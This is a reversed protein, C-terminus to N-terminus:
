RDIRHRVGRAPRGRERCAVTAEERESMDPQFSTASGRQLLERCGPSPDAGRYEIEPVDELEFVILEWGSRIFVAAGEPDRQEKMEAV